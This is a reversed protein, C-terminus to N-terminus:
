KDELLKEKAYCESALDLMNNNEYVIALRRWLISQTPHKEISDKLFEITKEFGSNTEYLTCLFEYARMDNENNKIYEELCQIKIDIYDNIDNTNIAYYESDYINYSKSVESEFEDLSIGMVENFSEEFTNIKCKEFIDGISKEGNFQIIKHILYTSQAFLKSNEESKSAEIWVNSNDLEKLPLFISAEYIPEVISCYYENLGNIFWIPFYQENLNNDKFFNDLLYNYYLNFLKEKFSMSQIVFSDDNERIKPLNNIIERFVDEVNMYITNLTKNYYGAGHRQTDGISLREQFIEKDFDLQITLEEKPIYGLIENSKVEIKDLYSFLLPLAIEVEENHLIKYNKYLTEKFNNKYEKDEFQSYYIKNIKYKIFEKGPTSNAYAIGMGVIIVLSTGIIIKKKYKIM